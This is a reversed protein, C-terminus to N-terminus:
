KVGKRMKERRRDAEQVRSRSDRPMRDQETKFPHRVGDPNKIRDRAPELKRPTFSGRGPDHM